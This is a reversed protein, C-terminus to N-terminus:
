PTVTLVISDSKGGIDARITATTNILVNKGTVIATAASNAGISTLSNSPAITAAGTASWNITRNQLPANLRWAVATATDTTLKKITTAVLSITVSDVSGNTVTVTSNKSIGESTATITATGTVAGVVDISAGTTTVLTVFTAGSTVQWTIVRGTLVNNSADKTTATLTTTANQGISISTPAITVTAVPVQTVAVAAAGSVSGSTATITAPGVAVATVLGTTPDVSAILPDSSTWTVPRNTLVNGSADKVTATLQGPPGGLTLSLTPPSVTVSAVPVLTVTVASTGSKTGSTATITSTGPLLASVLGTSSVLAVLPSSSSWTVNPSTIPNGNVDTVTATLQTTGGVVITPASPSVSVNAAGAATVTVASSGSVGDATGTITATGAAVATVVGSSSVTAVATNSSAWTIIKGTLVTGSADKVAATLPQTQGSVMTIPSPTVTVSAVAGPAVTFVSADSKGESTATITATGAAKATVVGAASVTAVAANSTTWIMARDLLTNQAADLATATLATTSGIAADVRNPRVVVSAVPTRQVIITALGSKGMASAAVQTTGIALATVVGSVSVSAITPNEVTWTVAADPVVAGSGDKVLAQLPLQANLALTSSAPNVVIAAVSTTADPQTSGCSWSALAITAALTRRLSLM